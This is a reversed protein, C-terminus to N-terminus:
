SEREVYIYMYVSYIYIYVCVCYINIYTDISVRADLRGFGSEGASM